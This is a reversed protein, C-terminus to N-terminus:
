GSKEKYVEHLRQLGTNKDFDAKRRILTGEM